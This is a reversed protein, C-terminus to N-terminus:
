ALSVTLATANKTNEAVAAIVLTMVGSNLSPVCMPNRHPMTIITTVIPAMYM